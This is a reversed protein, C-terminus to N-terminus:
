SELLKFADLLLRNTNLNIEDESVDGIKNEWVKKKKKKEHESHCASWVHVDLIVRKVGLLWNGALLGM